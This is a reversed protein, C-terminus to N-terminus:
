SRNPNATAWSEALLGIATSRIRHFRVNLAGVKINFQLSAEDTAM